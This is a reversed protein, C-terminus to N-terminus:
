DALAEFLWSGVFGIVWFLLVTPLLQGALYDRRLRGRLAFITRLSVFPWFMRVLARGTITRTYAPRQYVAGALDRAIYGEGAVLYGFIWFWIM